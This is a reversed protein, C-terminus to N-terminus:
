HVSIVNEVTPPLIPTPGSIPQQSELHYNEITNIFQDIDLTLVPNLNHIPSSPPPNLHKVPNIARWYNPGSLGTWNVTNQGLLQPDNTNWSYKWASPVSPTSKGKTWFHNKEITWKQHPFFHGGIVHRPTSEGARDIFVSSNNNVNAYEIIEEPDLVSLNSGSNDIFLNNYIDVRKFPNDKWIHYHRFGNSVNIVVNGHLDFTGKSNDGEPGQIEKMARFGNRGMGAWGGWEKQANASHIIFNHRVTADFADFAHPVNSIAVSGTDGVLNWEVVSNSTIIGEGCIDYIINHHIHHSANATTAQNSIAASWANNHKDYKRLMQGTHMINYAYINSSSHGGCLGSHGFNHIYTGTLTFFSSSGSLLIANGYVNRIEINKISCYDRQVDFVRNWLKAGGEGHSPVNNWNTVSGDIAPRTKGSGYASVNVIPGKAPFTYHSLTSSTTNVTWTDGRKLYINVTDNYGRSNIQNQMKSLSKWPKEITGNGSTDNGTSNSFYWNFTAASAFSPITFFLIFTITLLFLKKM